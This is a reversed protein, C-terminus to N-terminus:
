STKRRFFYPNRSYGLISFGSRNQSLDRLCMRENLGVQFREFFLLHGPSCRAGPKRCCEGGQAPLLPRRRGRGARGRLGGGGPRGPPLHAPLSAQPPSQPFPVARDRQLRLLRSSPPSFAPAAPKARPPHEPACRHRSPRLAPPGPSPVQGRPQPKGAGEGEQPGLAKTRLREASGKPNNLGRPIVARFSREEGSPLPAAATGRM